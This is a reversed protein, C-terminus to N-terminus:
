DEKHGNGKDDDRKNGRDDNGRKKDIAKREAVPIKQCEDMVIEYVYHQLNSRYASKFMRRESHSPTGSADDSYNVISTAVCNAFKINYNQTIRVKYGSKYEFKAEVWARKTVTNISCATPTITAVPPYHMTWTPLQAIVLALCSIIM